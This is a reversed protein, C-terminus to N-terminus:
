YDGGYAIVNFTNANHTSAGLLQGSELVLADEGALKIEYEFGTVTSSVTIATVKIEKWLYWTGGDKIYLRIIGASTTVTAKIVIRNVRTGDAGATLVTGITGTGDRNTNATSIQAIGLNPAESFIPRTNATM